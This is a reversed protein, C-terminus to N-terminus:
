DPLAIRVIGGAEHQKGSEDSWEVNNYAWVSRGDRAFRPQAFSRGEPSIRRTAGSAVDVVYLAAEGPRGTRASAFVVSKGDPAWSPWGDFAAHKTLNRENGGDIDAIFIESNYDAEGLAWNFGPAQLVKRYVLQTGDPSVQAYTCISKCRTLRRLGSGDPKVSYVEQWQQQWPAAPDPTEHNSDFVIRGGDESWKPHGIDTAEPLPVRTVQATALDLMFLANTSGEAANSAVGAFLLRKGDPSWDPTAPGMDLGGIRRLGTGDSQMMWLERVGSRNSQFAVRTGDPSPAPYTDQVTTVFETPSAVLVLSAILSNMAM